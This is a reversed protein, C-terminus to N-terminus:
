VPGSVCGLVKDRAAPSQEYEKRAEYIQTFKAFSCWEYVDEHRNIEIMGAMAFVGFM